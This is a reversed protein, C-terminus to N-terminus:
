YYLCYCNTNTEIFQCYKSNKLRYQYQYQGVVYVDRGGCCVSRTVRNESSRYRELMLLAVAVMITLASSRLCSRTILPLSRWYIIEGLSCGSAVAPGTM